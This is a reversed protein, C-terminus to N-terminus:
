EIQCLLPVIEEKLEHFFAAEDESSFCFSHRAQFQEYCNQITTSSLRFHHNFHERERPDCLYMYGRTLRYLQHYMDSLKAYREQHFRGSGTSANIFHRHKEKAEQLVELKMNATFLLHNRSNHEPLDRNLCATVIERMQDYLDQAAVAKEKSQFFM